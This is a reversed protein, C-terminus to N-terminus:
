HRPIMNQLQGLLSATGLAPLSRTLVTLVASNSASQGNGLIRLAQSVDGTGGGISQSASGLPTSISVVVGGHGDSGVTASSGASAYSAGLSGADVPPLSTGVDVLRVAFSNGGQNANGAVQTLQGVGRIQLGGTAIGNATGDISGVGSARSSVVLSPRSSGLGNLQLTTGASLAGQPANWTSALVLRFGTIAGGAPLGRGQALALQADGVVRIAIPQQAAHAEATWMALVAARIILSRM